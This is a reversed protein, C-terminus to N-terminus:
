VGSKFRALEILGEAAKALALAADPAQVALKDVDKLYDEALAICEEVTM